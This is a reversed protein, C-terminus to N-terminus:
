FGHNLLFFKLSNVGQELETLPWDPRDPCSGKELLLEMHVFVFPERDQLLHQLDKRNGAAAGQEHGQPGSNEKEILFRVQADPVFAVEVLFERCATQFTPIRDVSESVIEGELISEELLEFLFDIILDFRFLFCYQIPEMPSTEGVGATPWGVPVPAELPLGPQGCCSPRSAGDEENM